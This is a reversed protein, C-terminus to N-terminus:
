DKLLIKLKAMSENIPVREKERLIHGEKLPLYGASFWQDEPTRARWVRERELAKEFQAVFLKAFDYLTTGNDREITASEDETLPMENIELAITLKTSSPITIQITKCTSYDQEESKKAPEQEDSMNAPAHDDTENARKQNSAITRDNSLTEILKALFPRIHQFAYAPTAHKETLWFVVHSGHGTWGITDTNEWVRHLYLNLCSPKLLSGVMHSPVHPSPLGYMAQPNHLNEMYEKTYWERMHGVYAKMAKRYPAGNMQPSLTLCKRINAANPTTTNNLSTASDWLSLFNISRDALYEDFQSHDLRHYLQDDADEAALKVCHLFCKKKIVVSGWICDRWFKSVLQADRLIDSGSLNLLIKELLEAIDLVKRLDQAASPAPSPVISGEEM